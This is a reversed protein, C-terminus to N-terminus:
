RLVIIKGIPDQPVCQQLQQQGLKNWFDLIGQLEVIANCTVELPVIIKSSFYWPNIM